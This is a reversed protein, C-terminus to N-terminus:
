NNVYRTGLSIVAKNCSAQYKFSTRYISISHNSLHISPHIFPHSSPYILSHISPYISPHISLHISPHIFLHISLYIPPHISPYHTRNCPRSPPFTRFISMPTQSVLFITFLSNSVGTAVAEQQINALGAPYLLAPSCLHVPELLCCIHPMLTQRQQSHKGRLGLWPELHWKILYSCLSPAWSLKLKLYIVMIQGQSTPSVSITFYQESKLIKFEFQVKTNSRVVWM